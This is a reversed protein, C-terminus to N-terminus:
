MSEMKQVLREIEKRTKEDPAEEMMDRLQEVMDNGSYDRSYAKPLVM